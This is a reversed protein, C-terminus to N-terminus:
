LIPRRRHTAKSGTTVDRRLLSPSASRNQRVFRSLSQQSRYGLLASIQKISLQPEEALAKEFKALAMERKLARFSKGTLERVIGSISHREM